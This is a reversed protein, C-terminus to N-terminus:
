HPRSDPRHQELMAVLRQAGQIYDLHFSRGDVLRVDMGRASRLRVGSPVIAHLPIHIPNKGTPQWVLREETLWFRGSRRYQFLEWLYAAYPLSLLRIMGFGMINLVVIMPGISPRGPGSAFDRFIREMFFMSICTMLIAVLMYGAIYNLVRLVPQMPKPIYSEFAGHHLVREESTVPPAMTRALLQHLRALKEPLSEGVKPSVLREHMLAELRTRLKEVKQALVLAPEEEPWGEVRGRQHVRALVEDLEPEQRIQERLTELREQVAHQWQKRRLAKELLVYRTHAAELFEIGGELQRRIDTSVLLRTRPGPATARRSERPALLAAPIESLRVDM